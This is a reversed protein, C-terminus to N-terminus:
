LNLSQLCFGGFKLISTKTKFTQFDLLNRPMGVVKEEFTSFDRNDRLWWWGYHSEAGKPGEPDTEGKQSNAKWPEDFASFMYLKLQSAVAIESMRKWFTRLNRGSNKSGSRSIGSSPWGTEFWVAIGKNERKMESEIAVMLSDLATVTSEVGESVMSVSPFINCILFDAQKAIKQIDTLQKTPSRM